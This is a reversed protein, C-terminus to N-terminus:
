GAYSAPDHETSAPTAASAATSAVTSAMTRADLGNLLRLLLMLFTLAVAGTLVGLLAVVAHDAPATAGARLVGTMVAFYVALTATASTAFALRSM